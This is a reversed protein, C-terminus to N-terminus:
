ISIQIKLSFQYVFTEIDFNLSNKIVFLTNRFFTKFGQLKIVYVLKKSM